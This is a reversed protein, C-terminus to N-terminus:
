INKICEYKKGQYETSFIRISGFRYTVQKSKPMGKQLYPLLHLRLPAELM